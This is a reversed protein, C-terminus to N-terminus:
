QRDIKRGKLRGAKRNEQREIKQREM